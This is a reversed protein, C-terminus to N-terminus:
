IRTGLCVKPLWLIKRAWLCLRVVGSINGPVSTAGQPNSIEYRINQSIYLHWPGSTRLDQRAVFRISNVSTNGYFTTKHPLQSADSTELHAGKNIAAAQLAQRVSRLSPSSCSVELQVKALPSINMSRKEKAQAQESDGLPEYNYKECRSVL